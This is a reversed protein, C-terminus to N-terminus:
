GEVEFNAMRYETGYETRNWMGGEVNVGMSSVLDM